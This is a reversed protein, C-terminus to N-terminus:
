LGYVGKTMTFSLHDLAVKSGYHKTLGEMKLEM